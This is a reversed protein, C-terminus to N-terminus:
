MSESRGPSEISKPRIFPADGKRTRKELLDGDRNFLVAVALESNEDFAITDGLGDRDLEESAGVVVPVFRGAARSGAM